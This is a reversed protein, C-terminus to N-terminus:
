AAFIEALCSELQTNIFHMRSRIFRCEHDQLASAFSTYVAQLFSTADM